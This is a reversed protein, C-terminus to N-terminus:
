KFQEKIKYSLIQRSLYFLKNLASFHTLLLTLFVAWAITTNHSRRQQIVSTQETVKNM